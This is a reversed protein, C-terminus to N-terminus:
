LGMAGVVAGVAAVAVAAVYGTERPGAAGGTPTSSTGAAGQQQGGAGGTGTAPGSGSTTTTVAATAPALSVGSTLAFLLMLATECQAQETAVLFLLYGADEASEEMCKAAVSSAAPAVSAQWASVQSTYSAYATAIETPATFDSLFGRSCISTVDAADYPRDSETTLPRTTTTTTTTPKATTLWVELEGSPTPREEGLSNAVSSCESYLSGTPTRPNLAMARAVIAPGATVEPPLVNPGALALSAIGTFALLTHTHM